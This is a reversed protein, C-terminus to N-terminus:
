RYTYRTGAKRAAFITWRDIDFRDVGLRFTARVARWRDGSYRVAGEGIRDTKKTTAPQKTSIRSVL